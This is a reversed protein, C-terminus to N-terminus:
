LILPECGLFPIEFVVFFAFIMIYVASIQMNLDQEGEPPAHTRMGTM